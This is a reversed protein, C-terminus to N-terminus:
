TASELSLVRCACEEPGRTPVYEPTSTFMNSTSGPEEVAAEIAKRVAIDGACERIM